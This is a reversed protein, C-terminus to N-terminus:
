TVVVAVPLGRLLDAPAMGPGDVLDLQLRQGDDTADTLDEGDSRALDHVELIPGEGAPGDPPRTPFM